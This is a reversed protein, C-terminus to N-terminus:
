GPPAEGKKSPGSHQTPPKYRWPFRLVLAGDLNDDKPIPRGLHLYNLHAVIKWLDDTMKALEEPSVFYVTPDRKAKLANSVIAQGEAVTTAGFHLLHNRVGNIIGLQQFVNELDDRKDKSAGAVTAFQKIWTIGLETKVSAFAIKSIEPTTKAYHWLTLTMAIEVRAFMHVFRGLASYYESLRMSREAQERTKVWKHRRKVKQHHTAM